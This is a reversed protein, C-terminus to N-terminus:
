WAWGWDMSHFDVLNFESSPNTQLPLDFMAFM